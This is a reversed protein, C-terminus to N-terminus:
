SDHVSRSTSLQIFSKLFNGEADTGSNPFSGTEIVIQYPIELSRDRAALQREEPADRDDGLWQHCPFFYVNQTQLATM